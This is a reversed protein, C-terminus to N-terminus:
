VCAARVYKNSSREAGNVSNAVNARGCAADDIYVTQTLANM